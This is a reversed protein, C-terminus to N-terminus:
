TLDLFLYFARGFVSFDQLPTGSLVRTDRTPGFCNSSCADPRIAAERREDVPFPFPAM